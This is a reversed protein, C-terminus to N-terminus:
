KANGRGHKCNPDNCCKGSQHLAAAMEAKTTAATFKGVLVGPPAFLALNQAGSNASLQLEALLEAEAPDAAEVVVITTRNQYHPDALFESIGPADPSRAGDQVRLFVLKGEQMAKMCGAMAPTVLAAAVDDASVRQANVGTVAGNPAIALMMPMPARGVAFRNVTAREAPNTIQVLTTLAKDPRKAIEESVVRAMTRTADDDERYFVVFAFKSREAAEALAQEASSAGAAAAIPAQARALPAIAPFGVAWVLVFVPWYAKM